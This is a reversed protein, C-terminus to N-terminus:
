ASKRLEALRHVPQRVSLPEELALQTGLGRYRNILIPARLNATLMGHQHSLAVYVDVDRPDALEIVQLEEVSSHVQYAPQIRRPSVLALAWAPDRVSQLWTISSEVPDPIRVFRRVHPLGILGYPFEVRDQWEVTTPGFRTTLVQM